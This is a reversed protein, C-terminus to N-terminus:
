CVVPWGGLSYQRNLYLAAVPNATSHRAQLHLPTTLQQKNFTCTPFDLKLEVKLVVEVPDPVQDSNVIQIPIQTAIKSHSPQSPLSFARISLLLLLFNSLQNSFVAVLFSRCGGELRKRVAYFVRLIISSIRRDEM